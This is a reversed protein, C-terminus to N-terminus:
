IAFTAGRNHLPTAASKISRTRMISCALPRYGAIGGVTAAVVPATPASAFGAATKRREPRTGVKPPAAPERKLRPLDQSENTKM